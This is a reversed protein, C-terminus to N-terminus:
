APSQFNVSSGPVTGHVTATKDKANGTSVIPMGEGPRLGFEGRELFQVQVKDAGIVTVNKSM